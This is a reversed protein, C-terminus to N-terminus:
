NGKSADDSNMWIENFHFCMMKLSKWFWKWHYTETYTLYFLCNADKTSTLSTCASFIEGVCMFCGAHSVFTPMVPFLLFVPFWHFFSTVMRTVMLLFCPILFTDPVNCQNMRSGVANSQSILAIFSSASISSGFLKQQAYCYSPRKSAM